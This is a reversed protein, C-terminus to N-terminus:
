VNGEDQGSEEQADGTGVMEGGDGAPEAPEAAAFPGPADEPDGGRRTAEAPAPHDNGAAEEASGANVGEPQVLSFESMLGASLM